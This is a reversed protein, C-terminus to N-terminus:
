KESDTSPSSLSSYICALSILLGGICVNPGLDEHLIFGAFAAGTLPELTYILTTETASLTKLAIQEMSSALATVFLGLYIIGLLALPQRTLSAYLDKWVHARLDLAGSALVWALSMITTTLVSFGTILMTDEPFKRVIREARLFNIGFFIPSIVAILDSLKPSELGGWELAVLGSFALLPSIYFSATSKVIDRSSEFFIFEFLPVFLVALGSILATKSASCKELSIAQSIYGLSCLTGLEIGSFISKINPKSRLSKLMSPIFYLVAIIFRAMIILQPSYHTQLMKQCAYNSGYMSACLVLMLRPKWTPNKVIVNSTIIKNDRATFPATTLKKENGNLSNSLSGNVTSSYVSVIAFLIIFSTM